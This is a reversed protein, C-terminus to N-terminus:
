ILVACLPEGALSLYNMSRESGNVRVRDPTAAFVIFCQKQLLGSTTIGAGGKTNWEVSIMCGDEARYCAHGNEFNTVLLVMHTPKEIGSPMTAGLYLQGDFALPVIAGSRVFVPIEKLSAAVKHEGSAFWKNHFLHWWKGAPLYVKRSTKGEVIVPAVLLDRGLMYQDWLASAQEDNQHDLVMARMLPTKVAVCHRAERVLYPM